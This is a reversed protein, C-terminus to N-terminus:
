NQVAVPYRYHGTIPFAFLSDELAPGAGINHAILPNGSRPDRHQTVIGIHPLNGPLMWTVVDGARYDELNRSPPLSRGQRSFFRQLNPVRRHDINSDPRTLGWIRKSPYVDFHEAMDEHVLEQLDLGVARYARIVLDTCVGRDDPVDGMPFPISRYAGDYEVTHHTREVAAEALSMALSMPDNEAYASVSLFLSLLSALGSCRRDIRPFIHFISM